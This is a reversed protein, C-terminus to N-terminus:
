KFCEEILKKAEEESYFDNEDAAKIGEIISEKQGKTLVIKESVETNEFSVKMKELLSKLLDLESKNKPYVILGDM